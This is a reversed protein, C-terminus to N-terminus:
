FFDSYLSYSSEDSNKSRKGHSFFIFNNKNLDQLLTKAHEESLSSLKPRFKILNKQVMEYKEEFTMNDQDRYHNALKNYFSAFLHFYIFDTFDYSYTEIPIQTKTYTFKPNISSIDKKVFDIFDNRNLKTRIFSSRKPTIIDVLKMKVKKQYDEKAAPAFPLIFWTHNIIFPLHLDISDFINREWTERTQGPLGAIFEVRLPIAKTTEKERIEIYKKIYKKNDEWSITPRDINKLVDEHIDQTSIKFEFYGKRNEYIIDWIKYVRDKHNKAWNFSLDDLIFKANKKACVDFFYRFIEVDEEYMGINPDVINLAMLKSCELSAFIDLDMRFDYSRRSVKNHLGSSWDCFSCKYPCGRTREWLIDVHTNKRDKSLDDVDKQIQDKCHVWPSIAYYKEDRLVEFRNTIREYNQDPYILNPISELDGHGKFYDLLLSFAKEADGYVVYDVEPNEKFWNKNNRVALEPGGIVIKINPCERKIDKILKLGEIQNWVYLGLGLIDIKEDKLKQIYEERSQRIINDPPLWKYDCNSIGFHDHYTKLMYYIPSLYREYEEISSDFSFYRASIIKIRM